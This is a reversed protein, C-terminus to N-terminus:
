EFSTPKLTAIFPLNRFREQYDLGYGVVFCDPVTFGVYRVGLDILRHTPKDLLTFVELSAPHRTRLTRLIYNLTLGTDIVDEVVLVHRGDLDQELDKIVRVAGSRGADPGYSSVALFDITTPIAISRLLDTLVVISGKLIAILHVGHAAYDRTVDAGVEAVRQRLRAPDILVDDILGDAFSLQKGM